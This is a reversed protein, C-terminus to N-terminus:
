FNAFSAIGGGQATLTKGFALTFVGTTDRTLSGGNLTMDGNANFTGGAIAVTGTANVMIVGTGSNFTGGSQVNMTGTTVSVAGITTM